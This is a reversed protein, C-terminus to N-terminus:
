EHKVAGSTPETLSEIVGLESRRRQLENKLQLIQTNKKDLLSQKAQQWTPYFSAWAERKRKRGGIWVWQETFKEVQVPKIDGSWIEFWTESM